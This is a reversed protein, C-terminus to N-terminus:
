CVRARMVISFKANQCVIIEFAVKKVSLLVGM